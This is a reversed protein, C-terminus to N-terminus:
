QTKAYPKAGEKTPWGYVKVHNILKGKSEQPVSSLDHGGWGETFFHDHPFGGAKAQEAIRLLAKAFHELGVPDGHVFVQDAEEDTEFTLLYDDM